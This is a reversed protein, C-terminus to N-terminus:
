SGFPAAASCVPCIRQLSDATRQIYMPQLEHQSSCSLETRVNAFEGDRLDSYADTGFFRTCGGVLCAFGEHVKILKGGHGVKAFNMGTLHLDCVVNEFSSEPLTMNM